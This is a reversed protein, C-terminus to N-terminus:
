SSLSRIRDEKEVIRTIRVGFREEVIVIEGKALLKGNVYIDVPEDVNRNLEVVSGPVLSLLEGITLTTSGIVVEVKLPIDLLRKLEQTVDRKEKEERQSQRVQQQEKIAEEWTSALNEPKEEELM